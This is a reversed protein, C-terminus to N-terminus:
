LIAKAFASPRKIEPYRGSMPNQCARKFLGDAKGTNQEFARTSSM